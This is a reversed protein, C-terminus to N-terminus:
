GEGESKGQVDHVRVGVRVLNLGYETGADFGDHARVRVRMRVTVM